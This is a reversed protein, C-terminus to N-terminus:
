FKWFKLIKWCKRIKWLKGFNELNELINWIKWFKLLKGFNWFNELNELIKWIKLIKLNQFRLIEFNWFTDRIGKINECFWTWIPSDLIRFLFTLFLYITLFWTWSPDDLIWIVFTKFDFTALILDLYSWGINSHFIDSFSINDFDLGIHPDFIDSPLGHTLLPPYPQSLWSIHIEKANFICIEIVNFIGIEKVDSIQWFQVIKVDSVKYYIYLSIRHYTHNVLNTTWM